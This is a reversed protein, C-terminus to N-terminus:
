QRPPREGEGRPGRQGGAGPPRDQFEFPDGVMEKFKARQEPNLEALLQEQMQRRLEAVKKAFDQGLERSKNRLQERQEKTLALGESVERSGLAGGGGRMRFQIELQSLRQRQHPLLFDLGAETGENLKQMAERVKDQLARREEESAERNRFQAAFGTFAERRRENSTRSLERVAEKQDDLLELEAQVDPRQLLDLPGGGGGFPGGRGRGDPRNQADVSGAVLVLTVAVLLGLLSSYIKGIM